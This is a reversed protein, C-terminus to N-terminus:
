PRMKGKKTILFITQKEKDKDIALDYQYLNKERSLKEYLKEAPTKEVQKIAQM